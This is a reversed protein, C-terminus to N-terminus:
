FLKQRGAIQIEITYPTNAVAFISQGIGLRKPAECLEISSNKPIVMNYALWSFITDSNGIGVSVPYDGGPYISGDSINSVRISQIISPYTNGTGYYCLPTTSTIGLTPPTALSALTVIGVVTGTGNQYSTDTISQYVITAQLAGDEPVVVETFSLIQSSLTSTAPRTIPISLSGPTYGVGVFTNTQIGTNSGTGQVLMGSTLFNTIAAGATVTLFGVNATQSIAATSTSGIGTGAGTSQLVISDLANLIMPQKLLEVASGVPVPLRSSVKSVPSFYLVGTARGTMPKSLTINNGDVSTVYTNYQFGAISGIGTTEGINGTGTVAMGVTISSASGVTFTHIGAGGSSGASVSISAPVSKANIVFGATIEADGNSINTVHISHILYKNSGGPLTTIQTTTIGVGVIDLIGTPQVYLVNDITTDFKSGNSSVTITSISGSATVSVGGIFNLQSISNALGVITGQNQITLGNIASAPAAPVWSPANGVGNSQLITGTAGNALFTTINPTSQYLINGALGGKVYTALGANSVYDAITITGIGNTIALASLNVGVFNLTTVGSGLVTGEDAVSIGGQASVGSLKSGDGYYVVTTVGPNTSTIIGTSSIQVTGLTSIGSVNLQTISGIGGIVSTSAGSNSVYDDFTITAIGAPGTGAVSVINGVFNLQSFSNATSVITGEDRITLGTIAGAPAATIWTTGAGTSQLVQGPAGPQNASDYVAGTVRANGQVHLTQSPNTTGIGLSNTSPNFVLGTTTLGFGTTSGTGTVYTIYQSQNTTNTSISVGGFINSLKSGDGYYVVTTVGPNTSTIIGTSSIQVTGLTSIGSSVQLGQSQLIGFITAGYGTTEFEKVNDYYLEVSSNETGVFFYESNTSTLVLQNGAINFSGSGNVERIFSNNGDSYIELNNSNGFYLKNNDEIRLNNKFISFGSVNLQQTTLNTVTTVGLTSVGANIQGSFTTATIIGSANINRVVSLDRETFQVSGAALRTGSPFQTSGIGVAYNILWADTNLGAFSGSKFWMIKKYTALTSEGIGPNYLSVLPNGETSAVAIGGHNSTTDNSVDNGFADTRVGLILDPDAVKLEQVNIFATTGGLTINGTVNLNRNVQLDRTVTVDQPATFQSPISLTPSSGEGTGSTVTIQNSTGSINKVYDGTTYTGLGIADLPITAALAVNGTGDFSIATATVFNGTISFNRANELKTATTATGTLAGIFTTATVVGSVLTDGQVTLKSTPNTTGVGVSGFTNIRIVEANNSYFEVQGQASSYMGSDNDGSGFFGYGNASIGNAGPAGGRARFSNSTTVGAILVDGGVTLKSTPNTSGIGISDRIYAGGTVQLPQSSTGTLNTSGVVLEGTGKLDMLQTTGAYWRHQLTNISQPISYWLTNTDIGFAYDSAFLSINPNLVIKTGLSRTNFTPSSVGNLNFDIRNGTAGNLYIQGGGTVTDNAGNLIIRQSTSIGSVNLQTISGIGGIVDTSIGAKTAYTAIGAAAAYTVNSSVTITSIGNVENSVSVIAGSFNLTTVLVGVSNGQDQISIGSNSLVGKLKSGDGYYTVVGSTATVIGSSIQITGLTSIGSVNLQTISGIGGIVDTSIGAKTAYTAIGAATSLGSITAYSSIGASQAYSSIGAVASLNILGSGDGVFYASTVVGTFKADGIVHLNTTAITTGIGVKGIVELSTFNESYSSIGVKLNKQRGSTYKTM